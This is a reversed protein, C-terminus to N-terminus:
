VSLAAWKDLLASIEANIREIEVNLESVKTYNAAIDPKSMTEQIQLVQRELDAIQSEIEMARKQNQEKTYASIAKQPPVERIM